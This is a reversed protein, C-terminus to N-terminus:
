AAIMVCVKTPNLLFSLKIRNELFGRDANVAIIEANPLCPASCTL